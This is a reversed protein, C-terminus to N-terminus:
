LAVEKWRTRALKLDAAPTQQTSKIFGHLVAGKRYWGRM